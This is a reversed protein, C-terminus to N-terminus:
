GGPRTAGELHPFVREELTHLMKWAEEPPIGAMLPNLMLWGRRGLTDALALTEEPDLIWYNGRGALIDEDTTRQYPGSETGFADSTWAAYSEIQHTIHPRLRDLVKRKDETTVWLFMPGVAPFEGPDRKGAAVMLERYIAWLDGGGPAVWGDALRVAREITTRNGGGMYLRM